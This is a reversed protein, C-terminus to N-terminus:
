QKCTFALIELLHKSKKCLFLIRSILFSLNGVNENALRVCVILEYRGHRIHDLFADAIFRALFMNSARFFLGVFASNSWSIILM